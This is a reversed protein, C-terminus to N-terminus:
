LGQPSPGAPSATAGRFVEESKGRPISLSKWSERRLHKALFVIQGVHYSTHALSRHLADLVPIAQGRITVERDLLDDSLGDLASFLAKWGDEWKEFLEARSVTRGEFEEERNRWPKEGDSTLFDTFRSKLNGAVHWGIMAISNGEASPAASLRSEEVQSMAAEALKKYRQYEGRISEIVAV